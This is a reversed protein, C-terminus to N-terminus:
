QILRMVSQLKVPEDSYSEVEVGTAGGPKVKAAPVMRGDGVGTGDMTIQVVAVDFGARAKAGPLGGGVFYVPADTVFSIDRGKATALQRAWRIDFSRKGIELRGAVPAKKLEALFAETGGKLANEMVTINKAPTYKDIRITINADGRGQELMVSARANFVEPGEPLKKKSQAPSGAAHLSIAALLFAVAATLGRRPFNVSGM